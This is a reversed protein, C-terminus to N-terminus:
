MFNRETSENSTHIYLLYFFQRDWHGRPRLRLYAAAKTAPIAPEFRTRSMSTQRKHKYTTNDQTPLPRQSPSIVRGSSDKRADLQIHNLFRLLSSSLVWTHVTTGYSFLFLLLILEKWFKSNRRLSTFSSWCDSKFVEQNNIFCSLSDAWFM